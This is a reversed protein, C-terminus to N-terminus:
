QDYWLMASDWEEGLAWKLASIRGVLEFARAKVLENRTVWRIWEEVQEPNTPRPMSSQAEEGIVDFLERHRELENQLENIARVTQQHFRM